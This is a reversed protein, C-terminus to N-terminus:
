PALPTLTSLASCSSDDSRSASPVSAGVRISTGTPTIGDGNPYVGLASVVPPTFPSMTDAPRSPWRGIAYHDLKSFSTAFVQHWFLAMKEELPRKTNLMDHMWEAAGMGPGTDPHWSWPQFRMMEDRDLPEQVEPHLLEEVTAEYGKAARAVLEERPAGFGARRMLHVMLAINEDVM